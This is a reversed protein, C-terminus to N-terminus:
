HWVQQIVTRIDGLQMPRDLSFLYDILSIDLVELMLSIKDDIIVEGYFKIINFEALNHQMLTKLM